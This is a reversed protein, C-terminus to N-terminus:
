KRLPKQRPVAAAFPPRPRYEQKTLLYMTYEKESFRKIRHPYRASESNLYNVINYYKKLWIWKKSTTRVPFWAYKEVEHGSAPLPQYGMNCLIGTHFIM